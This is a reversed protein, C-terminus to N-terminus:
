LHSVFHSIRKSISIEVFCEVIVKLGREPIASAVSVVWLITAPQSLTAITFFRIKIRLRTTILRGGTLSPKTASIQRTSCIMQASMSILAFNVTVM